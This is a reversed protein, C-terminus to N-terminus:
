IEKGGELKVFKEKADKGNKDYRVGLGQEEHVEVETDDLIDYIKKLWKEQGPLKRLLLETPSMIKGLFMKLNDSLGDPYKEHVEWSANIRNIDNKFHNSAFDFMEKGVGRVGMERVETQILFNMSLTKGEVSATNRHIEMLKTWHAGEIQAKSSGPLVPTAPLCPYTIKQYHAM